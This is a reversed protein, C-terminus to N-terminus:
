QGFRELRGVAWELGAFCVKAHEVIITFLIVDWGDEQGGKGHL